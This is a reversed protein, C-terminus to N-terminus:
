SPRWIECKPIGLSGPNTKSVQNVGGHRLRQVHRAPELAVELVHLAVVVQHRDPHQDPGRAVPADDARQHPGPM